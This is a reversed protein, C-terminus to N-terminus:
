RPCATARRRPHSSACWSCWSRHGRDGAGPHDWPGWVSPPTHENADYYWSYTGLFAFNHILGILARLAIAGLGTVAGVIISLICLTVLGVTRRDANPSRAM